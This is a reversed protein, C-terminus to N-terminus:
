VVGVTPQGMEDGAEEDDTLMYMEKAHEMLIPFLAKHALEIEEETAGAAELTTAYMMSLLAEVQGHVLPNSPQAASMHLGIATVAFPLFQMATKSLAQGYTKAVEAVVDMHKETLKEVRNMTNGKQNPNTLRDSVTLTHRLGNYAAILSAM